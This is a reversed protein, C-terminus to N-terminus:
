IFYKGACGRYPLVELVERYNRRLRMVEEQKYRCRKHQEPLDWVDPILYAHQESLMVGKLPYQEKAGMFFVEKEQDLNKLVGAIEKTTMTRKQRSGGKDPDIPLLIVLSECDKISVVREWYVEGQFYVSNSAASQLAALAVSVTLM